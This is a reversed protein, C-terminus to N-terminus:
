CLRFLIFSMDDPKHPRDGAPEAMREACLARISEAAQRLSGKRIVGVIEEVHLNDYVGDSAILVTDYRALRIVPGVEIHMPESGIANSILHRHEHHIAEQEDLIGSEVAYGVPSHPVTQYKIRGRQGTVLVATDGAHYPRFENGSLQVLAVTTAAGNLESMITTHAGELGDLIADRLQECSGRRSEVAQIVTDVLMSSAEDGARLGGLGDAVLLAANSDDCAVVALSDENSTPKGPDRTTFCCVDVGSTRVHEIERMDIAARRITRESKM